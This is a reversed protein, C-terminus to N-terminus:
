ALYNSWSETQEELSEESDQFSFHFNDFLYRATIQKLLDLEEQELDKTDVILWDQRSGDLWIEINLLYELNQYELDGSLCGFRGFHSMSGNNTYHIPLYGELVVNISKGWYPFSTEIDFFLCTDVSGYECTKNKSKKISGVISSRELFKRLAYAFSYKEGTNPSIVSSLKKFNKM